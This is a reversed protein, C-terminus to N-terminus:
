KEIAAIRKDHIEKRDVIVNAPANVGVRVHGKQNGLIIFEINNNVIISEGIRRTLILM